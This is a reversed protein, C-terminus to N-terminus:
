RLLTEGMIGTRPSDSKIRDKRREALRQKLQEIRFLNESFIIFPLEAMETKVERNLKPNLDFFLRFLGPILFKKVQISQLVEQDDTSITM